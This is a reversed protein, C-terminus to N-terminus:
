HRGARIHAFSFQAVMRGFYQRGNGFIHACDLRGVLLVSLGLPQTGRLFHGLGPRQMCVMANLM